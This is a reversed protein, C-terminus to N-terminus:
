SHERYRAVLRDGDVEIPLTIHEFTVEATMDVGESRWVIPTMVAINIERASVPVVFVTGDEPGGLIEVEQYETM